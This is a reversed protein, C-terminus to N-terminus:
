VDADRKLARAAADEDARKACLFARTYRTRFTAVSGLLRWEADLWAAGYQKVAWLILAEHDFSPTVFLTVLWGPGECQVAYNDRHNHSQRCTDTCAHVIPVGLNQLTAIFTPQAWLQM